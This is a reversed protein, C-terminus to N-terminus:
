PAAVPAKRPAAGHYRFAAGRGDKRTPPLISKRYIPPLKRIRSRGWYLSTVYIRGGGLNGDM